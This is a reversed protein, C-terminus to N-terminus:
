LVYYYQYADTYEAVSPHTTQQRYKVLRYVFLIQSPWSSKGLQLTISFAM